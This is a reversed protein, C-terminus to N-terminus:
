ERIITVPVKSYSSVKQAVSGILMSKFGGLGRTGMVILDFQREFAYKVISEAPHGRLFVTTIDVGNREGYEKLKQIEPSFHKEADEYFEEIESISPSFEPPKVVTVAVIDANVMKALGMAWELAKWSGKSSDFAFLIKKLIM